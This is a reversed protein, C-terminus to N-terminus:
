ANMWGSRQRAQDDLDSRPKEGAAKAEAAAAETKAEHQSRLYDLLGANRHLDVVALMLAVVLDDHFGEAAEYRIRGSSLLEAEFAAGESVLEAIWPMSFERREVAVQLGQVLTTKSDNTFTVPTLNQVQKRLMEVVVSGLGTADVVVPCNGYRGSLACVREVQVEWPLQHFHHVARVRKSKQGIVVAATFDERQALDLGMVCPEGEHPEEFPLAVPAQESGGNLCVPTLDLVGAGYDLFEALYEQRFADRPLNAEAFRVHEQIAPLPNDTTPGQLWYYGAQKSQAKHLDRWVWAGPGRKGKPTTLVLLRGDRDALMPPIAEDRVSARVRAGEDIVVLDFGRGLAADPNEATFMEVRSGNILELDHTTERAYNLAASPLRKVFEEWAVRVAAYQHAFWGVKIAAALALELIMEVAGVTKGWRRGLVAVIVRADPESVLERLKVQGAHPVTFGHLEIETESVPGTTSSM